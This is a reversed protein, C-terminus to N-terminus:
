ARVQEGVLIIKLIEMPAVGAKTAAQGFARAADEDAAAARHANRAQDANRAHGVHHERAADEIGVLALVEADGVVENALALTDGLRQRQGLPYGGVCRQRVVGDRLRQRADGVQRVAVAQEDFRQHGRDRLAAFPRTRAKRSLRAGL